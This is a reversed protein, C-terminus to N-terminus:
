DQKCRLGIPTPEWRDPRLRALIECAYEGASMFAHTYEGPRDEMYCYQEVMCELADLADHEDNLLRAMRKADEETVFSAM